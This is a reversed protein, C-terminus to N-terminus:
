EVRSGREIRKLMGAVVQDTLTNPHIHLPPLFDAPFVLTRGETAIRAADEAKARAQMAEELSQKLRAIVAEEPIPSQQKEVWATFVEPDRIEVDGAFRMPVSKIANQRLAYAVADSFAEYDHPGHVRSDSDYREYAHAILAGEEESYRPMM